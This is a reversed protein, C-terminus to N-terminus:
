VHNVVPQQVGCSAVYASLHIFFMPSLFVGNPRSMSHSVGGCGWIFRHKRSHKSFTFFSQLEPYFTAVCLQDLNTINAFTVCLLSTTVSLLCMGWVLLGYKHLSPRPVESFRVPLGFFPPSTWLCIRTHVHPQTLVRCM